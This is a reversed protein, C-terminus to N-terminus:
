EEKNLKIISYIGFVTYLIILPYGIIENLNHSFACLESPCPEEAVTALDPFYKLYEIHSEIGYIHYIAIHVQEHMYALGLFGLFFIIMFMTQYKM